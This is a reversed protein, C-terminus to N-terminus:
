KSVIVRIFEDTIEGINIYYTSLCVQFTRGSLIACYKDTSAQGDTLITFEVENRSISRSRIDAVLGLKYLVLLEEFKNTILSELKDGHIDSIFEEITPNM